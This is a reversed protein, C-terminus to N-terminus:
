NQSFVIDHDSVTVCPVCIIIINIVIIMNEPLAIKINCMIKYKIMQIYKMLHLITGYEYKAYTRDSCIRYIYSCIKLYILEMILNNNDWILIEWM